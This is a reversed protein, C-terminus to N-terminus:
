QIKTQLLGFLSAVRNHVSTFRDLSSNGIWLFLSQSWRLRQMETEKRLKTNRGSRGVQGVEIFAAESRIKQFGSGQEVVDYDFGRWIFGGRTLLFFFCFTCSFFCFPFSVLVSSLFLVSHLFPFTLILFYLSPFPLLFKQQFPQPSSLNRLPICLKILTCPSM